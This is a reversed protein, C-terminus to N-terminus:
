GVSEFRGSEASRLGAELVKMCALGDRFNPEVPGGGTVANVFDVVSHTFEHEYGIIHGPPWWNAIYDHCPETALINRFGQTADSDTASFYELENMRELNFRLSGESGYIEFMNYNKRGLAFRSSEFSGLSIM